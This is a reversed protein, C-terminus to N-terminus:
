IESQRSQFRTEGGKLKKWKRKKTELIYIHTKKEQRCNRKEATLCAAVGQLEDDCM